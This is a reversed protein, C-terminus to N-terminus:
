IVDYWWGVVGNPYHDWSPPATAEIFYGYQEDHVVLIVHNVEQPNTPNDADFLVYEFSWDSTRSSSMLMDAVLITLDECDGGTRTFTELRM